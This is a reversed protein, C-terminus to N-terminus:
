CSAVLNVLPLADEGIIVNEHAIRRGYGLIELSNCGDWADTRIASWPEVCEELAGHLSLM